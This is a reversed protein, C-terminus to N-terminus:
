SKVSATKLLSIFSEGHDNSSIGTKDFLLDVDVQDKNRIRFPEFAGIFILQIKNIYNNHNIMLTICVQCQITHQYALRQYIQM